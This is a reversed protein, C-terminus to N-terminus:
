CGNPKLWSAAPKVNIPETGKLLRLCVLSLNDDFLGDEELGPEIEAYGNEHEDDCEPSELGGPAVGM